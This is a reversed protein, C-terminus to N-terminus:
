SDKRALSSAVVVETNQCIGDPTVSIEINGDNRLATLAEAFSESTTFCSFSEGRANRVSCSVITLTSLTSAQYRSVSCQFREFTNASNRAAGLSGWMFTSGDRPQFAFGATDTDRAGAALPMSAAVALVMAALAVGARGAKGAEM